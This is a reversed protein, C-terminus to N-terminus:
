ERLERQLSGVEDVRLETLYRQTSAISKHGLLQSVLHIDHTRRLARTAVTRRMRHLHIRGKLGLDAGVSQLHRFVRRYACGGGEAEADSQPCLWRAVSAGALWEKNLRDWVDKAGELPMRRVTGGKQELELIGTRFATKLDSRRIRLADGIRAGTVACVLLVTGEPSHDAGLHEVLEAWDKEDFSQQLKKPAGQRKKKPKAPELGLDRVAADFPTGFAEPEALLFATYVRLTRETKPGLKEIDVGDGYAVDLKDVHRVIGKATSDRYGAKELWASFLPEDVPNVQM